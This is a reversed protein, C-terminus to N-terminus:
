DRIWLCERREQGAILRFGYQEPALRPPQYTGKPAPASEPKVFSVIGGVSLVDGPKTIRGLESLIEKLYSYALKGAEQSDSEYAELGEIRVFLPGPERLCRLFTLVDEKFYRSTFDSRGSLGSFEGRWTKHFGRTCEHDVGVYDYAGFHQAVARHGVSRNRDGCALDLFTKGPMLEKFLEGLPSLDASQPHLLTNFARINPTKLLSKWRPLYPTEHKTTHMYWLETPLLLANRVILALNTMHIPTRILTTESQSKRLENLLQIKKIEGLHPSNLNKQIEKQARTAGAYAKESVLKEPLDNSFCVSSAGSSLHKGLGYFLRRGTFETELPTVMHQPTLYREQWEKASLTAPTLQQRPSLQTARNGLAEDLM